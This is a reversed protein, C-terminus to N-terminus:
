LHSHIPPWALPACNPECILMSTPNPLAPDFHLQNVNLGVGIISTALRGDRVANEILIGCIKKNGVYIDNPWKIKAEINYTALCDIAALAGIESIVFQDAARVSPVEGETSFKTVISFTLNESPNSSWTNGRQGKGSTQCNASIVSLNDIESIRRRAEENTSDITDLWIIDHKNKM